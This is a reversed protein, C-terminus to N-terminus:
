EHADSSYLREIEQAYRKMVLKRRVKLTPTLEGNEITFPKEMLHYRKITEYRALGKNVEAVERDFINRVESSDLLARMRDGNKGVTKTFVRCKELDPVILAVVYNRRDGILCVQDIWPSQVLLGEIKQPAINKGGSTVILDKKRDIIKLFGDADVEGIDGTHFFGEANIVGRTEAELKYYGKMVLRGRVLIEGDDAIKVEVGPLPRGVTDFRFQTETNVSVVPSTETLGFGEYIPLGFGFFFESLETSLPAGGSIIARLRGGMNKRVKRFVIPDAVFRNLLETWLPMEKGTRVAQVKARGVALAVKFVWRLVRNAVAAKAHIRAYIKEAVRPVIVVFTPEARRIDEAIASVDKAFYIPIKALMFAYNVTRGLVHSLPLFCLFRDSENMRFCSLVGDVDFLFNDHTLMVGKPTGTTGSTYILSVVDERKIAWKRGELAKATEADGRRLFDSYRAVWLATTRSSDQPLKLEEDSLMIVDKLHHVEHSIPVFAGALKRNEIVLLRAESNELIYRVEEATSTPYISVTRGRTMQIGLDIIMWEPSNNMLLAVSDGEKLGAKLLGQAFRTAELLVEGFTQSVWAGAKDSRYFLPRSPNEAALRKFRGCISDSESM